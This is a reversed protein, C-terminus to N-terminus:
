RVVVPLYVMEGGGAEVGGGCYFGACLTLGNGVAGAVSQGVATELSLGGGSVMGGGSSVLSRPLMEGGAAAWGLSLLLLVIVALALVGRKRIKRM